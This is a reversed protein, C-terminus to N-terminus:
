DEAEEKTNFVEESTNEWFDPFEDELKDKFLQVM